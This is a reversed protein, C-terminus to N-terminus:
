ANDDRRNNYSLVAKVADDMTYVNSDIAIGQKKLEVLVKTINPVNLGIEMLKESNSFVNETTDFMFVSGKNMVLIRDAILAIDDMSHSVMIVTAGNKDRCDRLINLINERGIPDLGATPEDFILVDPNMALVGAIAVRRKEGGSLDFPSASLLEERLGVAKAAAFVRSDLEAGSLGMNKPGFAIDQAATEEFLQYEPYQFVLGVKERIKKIKTGKEWIDKGDFLVKGSTPTLLGNLHQVLTSKGSGTHGIVGIIEGQEIKLNVNSIAATPSPIGGSYSYSLDMVELISM